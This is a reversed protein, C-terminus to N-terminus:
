KKTFKKFFVKESSVLKLVYIGRQLDSFDQTILNSKVSKKSILKGLVDYVEIQDIIEPSSITIFDEVPNPSLSINEQTFPITSLVIQDSSAVWSSALSNDLNLDSLKLYPGSGDPTTPWPASDFYEVTDITNGNADAITIKYTKNSLNRSYQGFAPFGYANQFITANSALFIAQGASITSNIPFQYSIGLEKIYYGTLNIPSNGNNTIEIFELDNTTTIGNTIAPNYHIKSIVLPPIIPNNCSSFSGLDSTMWNLRLTIFNKIQNIEGVFNPVTGWREHERAIAETILNVTSDIFNFLVVTDMPKGPQRLENLRRAMECTFQGNDYLEYWFDAGVKNNNHFQWEYLVSHTNFINGFTQNMDWIPGARLKGGRDKHFFTSYEYCDSNSSMENVLMFDVFSPIDIVSKYGDDINFNYTNNALRYFESKIYTDQPITVNSSKPLEHIFKTGSMTWAVIDGNNVKDCKTIYGGTVNPLINDSATIKLINVRNDNSKIKEQYVYLGKYDGNVIVECYQTRTAYNGMARSVNYCLYDRIKSGDYPIANLIWDNESPMGLISVNNNSVNDVKLTTLSYSKKPLEQSSSGRIEINIRGNYNLFAPTNQDTLYNRTGDNHYIIKMTALVRPQDVIPLPQNTNPDLDTNIIVIPLNSDTFTQASM